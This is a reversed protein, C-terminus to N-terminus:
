VSRKGVGTLIVAAFFLFFFNTFITAIQPSLTSVSVEVSYLNEKRRENEKSKRGHSKVTKVELRIWLVVWNSFIAREGVSVV